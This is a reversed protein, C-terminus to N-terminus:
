DPPSFYIVDAGRDLMGRDCTVLPIAQSIATAVIWCDHYGMKRGQRECEVRLDVYQALISEDLPILAFGSLQQEVVSVKGPGWGRRVYGVRVEAITFPTIALIAHAVRDLDTRSWETYRSPNRKSKDLHVFFSTDCLLVEPAALEFTM